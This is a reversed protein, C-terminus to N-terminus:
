DSFLRRSFQVRYDEDDGQPHIRLDFRMREGNEIRYTGVSYIAEGGTHERMRVTQLQDRPNLARAEIRASVPEGDVQVAVTLMGRVRSRQLDYDGAVEPALRTTPQAGYYISVDGFREVGEGAPEQALAASAILLLAPISAGHRVRIM